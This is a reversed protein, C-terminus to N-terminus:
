IHLNPKMSTPCMILIKTKSSDLRLFLENMWTKSSSSYSNMIKVRQSRNTLYSAFWELAKGRIGIENHLIKLLKNQDVTDFAASLDLLLLLTPNKNDCEMLLQDVIKVLLMETSYDKKYGYQKNSHLNREVM